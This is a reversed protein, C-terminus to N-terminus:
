IKYIHLFGNVERAGRDKEIAESKFDVKKGMVYDRLRFHGEACWVNFEFKKFKRIAADRLRSLQTTQKPVWFHIHPNWKGSKGYFEVCFMSGKIYRNNWQLIINVIKHVNDFDEEEYTLNFCMHYCPAFGHQREKHEKSVKEVIRQLRSKEFLMIEACYEEISILAGTYSCKCKRDPFALSWFTVMKKLEELETMNLSM